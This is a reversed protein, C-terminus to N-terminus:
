KGRLLLMSEKDTLNLDGQWTAGGDLFLVRGVAV